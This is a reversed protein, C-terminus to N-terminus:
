PLFKSAESIFNGAFTEPEEIFDLNAVTKFPDKVDLDNEEVIRNYNKRSYVDWGDKEGDGDADINAINPINLTDNIFTSVKDINGVLGTVAKEMGNNVGQFGDVVRDFTSMEEPEVAEPAVAQEGVTQDDNEM